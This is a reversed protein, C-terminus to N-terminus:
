FRDGAPKVSLGIDLVGKITNTRMNQELGYTYRGAQDFTKGSVAKIQYEYITGRRLGLPKGDPEFLVLDIRATSSDGSPAVQHLLVFLNSYPYSESIRANVYLDYLRTTDQIDVEFNARDRWNWEHGPLALNGDFVYGSECSGFAAM